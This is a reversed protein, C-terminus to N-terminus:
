VRLALRVCRRARFTRPASGPAAGYQPRQRCEHSRQAPVKTGFFLRSM